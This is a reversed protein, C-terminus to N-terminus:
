RGDHLFTAPVTREFLGNETMFDFQRRMAAVVAPDWVPRVDFTLRKARVGDLLAEKDVELTRAALTLAENPDAEFARVADQFMAVVRPAVGPTALKENRMAVIFYFLDHGTQSKFMEDMTLLVRLNKARDMAVSIAPEWTLAADARKLGVYTPGQTAGPVNLIKIDTDYELNYFKKFFIQSMRYTGGGTAAAILKGKLDQVTKIDSDARVVVAAINARTFTSVLKVPAGAMHRSAITDWTAIAMDYNGQYFDQYYTPLSEYTRSADLAIGHKKDLGKATIYRLMISSTGAGFIPARIVVPEQAVVPRPGAMIALVVVGLIWGRTTTM